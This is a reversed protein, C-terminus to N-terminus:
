LKTGEKKATQEQTDTAGGFEVEEEVEGTGEGERDEPEQKVEPEGEVKVKTDCAANGNKDKSQPFYIYYPQKNTKDRKWEFFSFFWHVSM